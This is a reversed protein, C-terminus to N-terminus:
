CLSAQRAFAREPAAHYPAPHRGDAPQAPASDAPPYRHGPCPKPDRHPSRRSGRTYKPIFRRGQGGSLPTPNEAFFSDSERLPDSEEKEKIFYQDFRATGHFVPVKGASDARKGVTRFIKSLIITIQFITVNTM